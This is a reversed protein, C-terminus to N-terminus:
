LNEIEMWNPNDFTEKLTEQVGALTCIGIMLLLLILMAIM